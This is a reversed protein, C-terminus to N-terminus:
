FGYLMYYQKLFIKARKSFYMFDKITKSFLSSVKCKLINLDDLVVVKKLTSYENKQSFSDPAFHLDLSAQV